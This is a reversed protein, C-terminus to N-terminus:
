GAIVFGDRQADYPRSARQPQDNYSTSLAGMADFMLASTWSVEEAGGVIVRDLKGLQILEAGHGICHASTACASVISYSTGRIGFATALNASVTNGMVRPVAFPPVKDAGRARATAVNEAMEFSSGVGSGIILGTRVDSLAATSLGSEDIAARAAHYAYLAADAMFRQVKRPVPSLAERRPLGAVHSRLGAQVFDPAVVVASRNTRLAAAVEDVHNGVCSVIGRGTVVVRRFTM